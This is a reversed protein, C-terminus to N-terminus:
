VAEAELSQNCYSAAIWDTGIPGRLIPLGHAHPVRDIPSPSFDPRVLSHHPNASIICGRDKLSPNEIHIALLASVAIVVAASILVIKAFARMYRQSSEATRAEFSSSARRVRPMAATADLTYATSM